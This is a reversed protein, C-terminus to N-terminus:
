RTLIIFLLVAVLAGAIYWGVEISKTPNKVTKTEITFRKDTVIWGVRSNKRRLKNFTKM